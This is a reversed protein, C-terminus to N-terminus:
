LVAELTTIFYDIEQPTNYYHLSARVVQELGRQQFSVLMGSGGALSVNIRHKALHQQIATPTKQETMFTVIGCKELGEDTVAVGDIGALRARLDTALSIIRQQIAPMGFSQAYDMAVGLAAKGAFYQEWNEFRKADPRLVYKDPAVLDAAHQDLFPPELEDM